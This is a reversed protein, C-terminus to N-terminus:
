GGGGFIFVLGFRLYFLVFYQTSRLKLYYSLCNEATSCEPKYLFYQHIPTVIPFSWNDSKIKCKNTNVSTWLNLLLANPKSSIFSGPYVKLM